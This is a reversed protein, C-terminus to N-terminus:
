PQPANPTTLRAVADQHLKLDGSDALRKRLSDQFTEFALQRRDNLLKAQIQVKKSAFEQENPEVKSAIQYILQVGQLSIPGATWGAPMDFTKPDLDKANGVSPIMGDRAVPASTKAELGMSKAAKRLDKTAGQQDLLKVLEKAKSVAKDKAHDDVYDTRIREKVEAFEAPHPPIVDLLFPIAYGDAVQIATGVQNKQLTFVNQFFTETAKLRPLPDNQAFPPFSLVEGHYKQAVAGMEAPSKVLAEQAQQADSSLTQNVKEEMIASEIVSKVEEVPRLHAPEHSVGKIIHIGFMTQVPGSLANPALSFAVQEFEPVMQKTSFPALLGGNAANSKDDSYQKAMAAFDAGAKIQKLVDEAKKKAQAMQAPDKPDAKFLIHRVSVLEGVRYNDLHDQYYKKAEADSVSVTSQIKKRDILLVIASRKEPVPYRDKNKKFTEELEGDTPKIEKKLDAPNVTVYDLAVKENEKVFTKHVEEPSVSISDTVLQRLKDLVMNERMEAEFQRVSIGFNQSVIAEYQDQGIFNGGPFLSPNQRLQALMEAEDVKLGLRDAERLSAKQLILQNLIQRTYFPLMEPPIKSRTAVAQISQQVEAETIKEGSVEAVVPNTTTDGVDGTLGPILTVVMGICVLFLIVWLVGRVLSQRQRFINLM